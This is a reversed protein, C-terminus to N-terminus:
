EALRREAQAIVQQLFSINGEASAESEENEYLKVADFKGTRPDTARAMSRGFGRLDGSALQTGASKYGRFAKFRDEVREEVMDKAFGAVGSGMSKVRDFIGKMGSGAASTAAGSAM